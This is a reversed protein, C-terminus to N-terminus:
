SIFDKAIKNDIEGGYIIRIQEAIDEGVEQELMGRILSHTEQVKFALVEPTIIIAKNNLAEKESGYLPEYCIV